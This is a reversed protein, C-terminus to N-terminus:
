YGLHHVVVNYNGLAPANTFTLVDGSITWTITPTRYLGDVYVAIAAVGYPARSLQFTAQSGTGNFVDVKHPTSYVPNGITAM